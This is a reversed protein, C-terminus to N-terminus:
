ASAGGVRGSTRAAAAVASVVAERTVPKILWHEVGFAEGVERKSSISVVVVPITATDPTAKLKALVESGHGDPLFMDLTIADPQLIRAKRLAEDASMARAVRYGGDVLYHEILELAGPEDEIVLVLPGGAPMPTQEPVAVSGPTTAQLGGEPANRPIRFRFTSGRGLESQLSVSGGHLEVFRRVLTLGLGTGMQAATEASKVQEFERWIRAHDAKAIGIGTDVVDVEVVDGLASDDVVHRANVTVSGGEPTFKVANAVLNQLVQKIRTPDASVPPLDEPSSMKLAVGNRSAQAEMMALVERITRNLSLPQRSLELRGAEVKSLDLVENILGLLHRGSEHVNGVHRTQKENLDGYTRQLLIDSFGIISNLPTRLEHSMKALFESKARNSAEAAGRAARIEREAASRETIDSYVSVAYAVRGGGEFVPAAWIEIPITEGDRHIAADSVHVSEGDLARFCPRESEGYPEETGAETLRYIPPLSALPVGAAGRGGFIRRSEDNAYYLRRDSDVVLIGVPITNLFQFLLRENDKLRALANSLEITRHEVKQELDRRAELVRGAMADFAAGLVGIEDNRHLGVRRTYDGAAVDEVAATLERIPRTVRQVAAYVGGLGLALVLAGLGSMRLLFARAPAMVDDYSFDVVVQWPTGDVPEAWGFRRIDGTSRYATAAEAGLLNPPPEGPPGSLNAWASGDRNGVLLQAGSGLLDSILQSGGAGLRRWQAVHGVLAGERRVPATVAYRIGEDAEELPGISTTAPLAALAFSASTDGVALLRRGTADALEVRLVAQTETSLTSLLQLAADGAARDPSEAYAIVEPADAVGVVQRVVAPVQVELLESIQRAADRLRGDAVARASGRAEVVGVSVLGVLLVLMVGAMAASLRLGLSSRMGSAPSM